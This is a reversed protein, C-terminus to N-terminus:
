LPNELPFYGGSSAPIQFWAYDRRWLAQFFGRALEETDVGRLDAAEVIAAISRSGDILDFLRAQQESVVLSIASDEHAAWSLRAVGDAPFHGAEIELGPNRVPKYELWDRGRFSVAYSSAPRDDRCAVAIHTRLNGRFLEALASWRHEDGVGRGDGGSSGLDGGMANGVDGGMADTGFVLDAVPALGGCEPMYAAQCLFRQLRLGSQELLAQLEPVSFAPEGSRLADLLGSDSNLEPLDAVAARFPHSEPLAAAWGRIETADATDLDLGAAELFRRFLMVGLRGHRGGVTLVLSGSETLRSRVLRLFEGAPLPPPPGDACFVLDFRRDIVPIQDAGLWMLELNDLRYHQKLRDLQDLATDAQDIALFHTHAAGAALRAAESNPCGVVLAQLGERYPQDPFYLHFWREPDGVVAQRGEILCALETGSCQYPQTEYFRRLNVAATVGPGSQPTTAQM